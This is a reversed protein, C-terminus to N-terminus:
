EGTYGFKKLYAIANLCANQYALTADLYKQEGEKTVSIGQFILYDTHHPGFNGPAFIPNEAAYTNIGGKIIDCKLDIWGAM